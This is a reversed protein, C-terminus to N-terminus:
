TLTGGVCLYTTQLHKHVTGGPPKGGLHDTACKALTEVEDSSASSRSWLGRQFTWFFPRSPADTPQSVASKLGPAM